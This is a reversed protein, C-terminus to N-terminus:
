LRDGVYIWGADPEYICYTKAHDPSKSDTQYFRHLRTQFNTITANKKDCVLVSDYIIPSRHNRHYETFLVGQM